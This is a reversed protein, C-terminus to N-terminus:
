GAVFAGGHVWLFAARADATRLALRETPVGDLRTATVAVHAPVPAPRRAMTNMMSRLLMIDPRREFRRKMQHRIVKDLLFLRISMSPSRLRAGAAHPRSDADFHPTEGRHRLLSTSAGSAEVRAM